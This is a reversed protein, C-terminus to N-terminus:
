FQTLTMKVLRAAASDLLVTPEVKGPLLRKDEGQNVKTKVEETLQSEYSAM